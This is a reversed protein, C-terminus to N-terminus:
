SYTSSELTPITWSNVQITAIKFTKRLKYISGASLVNKFNLFYRKNRIHFDLVLFLVNRFLLDSNKTNQIYFDLFFFDFIWKM